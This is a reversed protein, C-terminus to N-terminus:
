DVFEGPSAAFRKACSPACFYYDHGAHHVKPTDETVRVQMSCVPDVVITAPEPLASTTPEPAVGDAPASSAASPSPYAGPAAGASRRALVYSTLAELESPDLHPEYSPMLKLYGAVVQTGPTVIARRVYDADVTVESGDELRRSSGALDFLTPALQANGHCGDCGLKAYLREGLPSDSAGAAANTQQPSDARALLERTDGVLREVAHADNSDYVGRVDGRQDVLFFMSSHMVKNAPDDTEAVDVRMDAALKPLQQVSPRLLLWRSETPNWQQAYAALVAPTDVEPDVSYSVFRLDDDPLRRMLAMTNATILPCVTSCTTFIFSAIWVKGELTHPSVAEGTHAPLAVDPAPWLVPLPGKRAPAYAAREAAPPTAIRQWTWLLLVAVVAASVTALLLASLAAKPRM